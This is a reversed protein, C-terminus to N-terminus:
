LTIKFKVALKLIELIVVKDIFRLHVVLKYRISLELDVKDLNIRIQSNM